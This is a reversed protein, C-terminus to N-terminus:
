SPTDSYSIDDEKTEPNFLDITFEKWKAKTVFGYSKDIYVGVESLVLYLDITEFSSHQQRNRFIVIDIDKRGGEKYLLGGTLAPYYGLPSLKDYLIKCLTIGDQQTCKTEEEEIKVGFLNNM